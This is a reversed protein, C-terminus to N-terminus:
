RRGERKIGERVAGEERGATERREYKGRATGERM